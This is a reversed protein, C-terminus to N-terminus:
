LTCGALHFWECPCPRHVMSFSMKPHPLFSQLLAYCGLGTNKGPSYGYVSSGSPSCGMPDRLTLCSQAVLWLVACGPHPFPHLLLPSKAKQGLNEQVMNSTKLFILMFKQSSNKFVLYLYMSILPQLIGSTPTGNQRNRSCYVESLRTLTCDTTWCTWAPRLKLMELLSRRFPVAASSPVVVQSILIEPWPSGSLTTLIPKSEPILCGQTWIGAESSRLQSIHPVSSWRETSQDAFCLYMKQETKTFIWPSLEIFHRAGPCVCLFCAIFTTIIIMM